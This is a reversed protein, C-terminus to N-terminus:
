PITLRATFSEGQFTIEVEAAGASLVTYDGPVNAIGTIVGITLNSYVTDTDATVDESSDDSFNATVVFSIVSPRSALELSSNDVLNSGNATVSLSTLTVDVVDVTSTDSFCTLSGSACTVPLDLVVGNKVQDDTIIQEVDGCAVSVVASKNSSLGTVDIQQRDISFAISAVSDDDVGWKSLSTINQNFTTGDAAQYNGVAQLSFVGSEEVETSSISCAALDTDSDLCLKLSNLNNDLTQAFDSSTVINGSSVSLAEAQIIVGGTELSQLSAQSNETQIIARQSPTDDEQNRIIWTITNIITSDVPRVEESGDDNLYSGVPKITQAQCMNITVPTSNLLVVQDFKADSIRVDLTTSLQGVKATITINEAVSGASLRGNQDITSIAGESVSWVINDDIAVTDVGNSKLGQITYDFFTDISIIDETSDVPFTIAILDQSAAIFLDVLKEEDEADSCAVLLLLLNSILLVGISKFIMVSVWMLRISRM